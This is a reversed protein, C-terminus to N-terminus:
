LVRLGYLVGIVVALLLVGAIATGTVSTFVAIKRGLVAAGSAAPRVEGATQQKGGRRAWRMLAIAFRVYLFVAAVAGAAILIQATNIIVVTSTM